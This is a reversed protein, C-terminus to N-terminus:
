DNRAHPYECVGSKTVCPELGDKCRYCNHHCFFSGRGQRGERTYDPDRPDASNTHGDSVDIIPAIARVACALDDAIGPPLRGGEPSRWSKFLVALSTPSPLITYRSM